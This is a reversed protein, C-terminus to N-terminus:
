SAQAMSGISLEICVSLLLDVIVIGGATAPSVDLATRAVFGTYILSWILVILALGNTTGQSYFGIHGLLIILIYLTNQPVMAWNYAIIFPVYKDRRLMTRSLGEMVLPFTCWAIVYALSELILFRSFLPPESISDFRVLLLVFFFPAVIAAATFSRFFGSASINFFSMGDPSFRALRVAGYISAIIESLPAM